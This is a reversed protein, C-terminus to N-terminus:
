YLNNKYFLRNLEIYNCSKLIEYVIDMDDYSPIYKYGCNMILKTFVENIDAFGDVGIVEYDNYKWGPAEMRVNDIFILIDNLSNFKVNNGLFMEFCMIASSILSRGTSTVSPAINIDFVISM